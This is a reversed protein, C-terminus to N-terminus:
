RGIRRYFRINSFNLDSDFMIIFGNNTYFGWKTEGDESIFNHLMPLTYPFIGNPVSPSIYDSLGSAGYMGREVVEGDRLHLKYTDNTITLYYPADYNPNTGRAFTGSFGKDLPLVFIVILMLLNFLLSIVLMCKILKTSDM